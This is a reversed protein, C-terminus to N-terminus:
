QKLAAAVADDMSKLVDIPQARGATLEQMEKLMTDQVGSLWGDSPSGEFTKNAWAKQMDGFLPDIDSVDIGDMVPNQKYNVLLTHYNDKQFVFAMYDSATKFNGNSPNLGLAWSYGGYVYKSNPDNTTPINFYGVNMNAKRVADLIFSAPFMAVTGQLFSSQCEAQSVGLPNPMFYGADLMQKYINITDLWGQTDVFKVQGSMLKKNIDPDASLVHETTGYFLIFQTWWSDKAAMAIPTVGKDKLTKCVNLLEDYTTPASLNYKTFIDKNYLMGCGAMAMPVGVPKGGSLFEVQASPYLAKFWAENSLDALYGGQFLADRDPPRLGYIDPGEGGALRAKIVSDFQKTDIVENIITVEPHVKNYAAALLDWTDKDGQGNSWMMFKLTVPKQAEPTVTPAPTPQQTAAATGAVTTAPAPTASTCGVLAATMMMLVVTLLAFRKFIVRKLDFEEKILYAKTSRCDFQLIQVRISCHM